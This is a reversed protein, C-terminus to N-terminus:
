PLLQAFDDDAVIIRLLSRLSTDGSDTWSKVLADVHEDDAANSLLDRRVAHRYWLKAMCTQAQSSAGIVAGLEAPDSVTGAVDGIPFLEFDAGLEDALPDYLNTDLNFRQLAAGYNDFVQHCTACPQKAHGEFVELPTVAEETLAADPLDEPLQACLLRETIFEGRNIFSPTPASTNSAVVARSGFVGFEEESELEDVLLVPFPASYFDGFPEESAVWEELFTRLQTISAADALGESADVGLWRVLIDVAGSSSEPSSVLAEMAEVRGEATKLDGAEAKEVLADDPPAGTLFFALRNAIERESLARAQGESEFEGKEVLLVFKPSLAVLQVVAEFRLSLAESLATPDETPEVAGPLSEDLASMLEDLREVDDDEFAGRFGRQLLGVGFDRICREPTYSVFDVGAEAALQACGLRELFGEQDAGRLFEVAVATSLGAYGSIALQTVAQRNAANKLGQSEAEVPLTNAYANSLIDDLPVGALHALASAYERNTVQSLPSYRDDSAHQTDTTADGDGSSDGAGKGAAEEETGGLNADCAGVFLGAAVVLSMGVTSFRSRGNNLRRV